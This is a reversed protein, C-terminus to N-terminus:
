TRFNREDFFRERKRLRELSEVAGGLLAGGVCGIVVVGVHWVVIHLANLNPCNVELVSLGTLGALGGAAAGALKPYLVAGRRLILWLLFGGPISYKLGNKMCMMGTALFAPERQFRFTAEIVMMLAVPIAVIVVAPSIVHRSGPVMQSVMSMALSFASVSLTVFLVIRQAVNLAGWGNIGLLLAGVAVVSLFNIACGLLLIRSSALPRIPKLNQSIAVEIRHLVSESPRLGDDDHDLVRMLGDMERFTV